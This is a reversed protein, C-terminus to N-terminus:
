RKKKKRGGTGPPHTRCDVISRYGTTGGSKDFNARKRCKTNPEEHWSLSRKEITKQYEDDLKRMTARKVRNLDCGVGGKATTGFTRWGEGTDGGETFGSRMRTLGEGAWEQEIRGLSSCWCRQKRIGAIYYTGMEKTRGRQDIVGLYGRHKQRPKGLIARPTNNEGKQV